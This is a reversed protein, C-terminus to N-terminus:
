SSTCDQDPSVVQEFDPMALIETLRAEITERLPEPVHQVYDKVALFPNTKRIDLFVWCAFAVSDGTTLLAFAKPRGTKRYAEWIAGASVTEGFHISM